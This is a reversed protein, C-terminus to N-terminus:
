ELAAFDTQICLVQRGIHRAAALAALALAFGFAGGLQLPSAPVLEHMARLALGGQLAADLAPVGLRLSGGDPELSSMRSPGIDAVVRQLRDLTPGLTASPM